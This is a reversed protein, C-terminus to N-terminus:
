KMNNGMVQMWLYILTDLERDSTKRVNTILIASGNKIGFILCINTSVNGKYM